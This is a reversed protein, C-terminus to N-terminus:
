PAGEGAYAGLVDRLEKEPAVLADAPDGVAPEGDADREGAAAKVIAAWISAALSSADLADAGSMEAILRELAARARELSDPSADHAVFEYAAAFVEPPPPDANRLGGARAQGAAPAASAESTLADVLFVAMAAYDPSIEGTVAADGLAASKNAEGTEPPPRRPDGSPAKEDRTASLQRIVDVLEQRRQADWVHAVSISMRVRERTAVGQEPQIHRDLARLSTGPKGRRTM